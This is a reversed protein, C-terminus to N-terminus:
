LGMDDYNMRSLHESTDRKNMLRRSLNPLCDKRYGQRTCNGLKKKFGFRNMEPCKWRHNSKGMKRIIRHHPTIIRIRDNEGKWSADDAESEKWHPIPKELRKKEESKEISNRWWELEHLEMMEKEIDIAESSEEHEPIEQGESDLTPTPTREKIIDKFSTENNLLPPKPSPPPTLSKSTGVSSDAIPTFDNITEKSIKSSSFLNGM